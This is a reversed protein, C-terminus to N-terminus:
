TEDSSASPPNNIILEAIQLANLAAGKRVNDAVVWCQLTCPNDADHRLRSIFVADENCSHTRPTVTEPDNVLVIGPAERLLQRVVQLDMAQETELTLAEAHGFFVPVRVATSFIKLDQKNLIKRTEHVMKLEEKTYGNDSLTDIKPIVNFAIAAPFISSDECSEGTLHQSSEKALTEIAANGAGSVSQYTSVVLRTVHYRAHIPNLAVVMQITSCNPNAILLPDHVHHRALLHGNVEPVILPVDDNMRFHSSNDITICGAAVAKPAYEAALTADTCFFAFDVQSFDFDKLTRVPVQTDKLTYFKGESRESALLFCSGLPFQRETLLEILTEGVLGTAGIIAINYNPM